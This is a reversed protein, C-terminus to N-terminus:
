NNEFYKDILGTDRLQQTLLAEPVTQIVDAKLRIQINSLCRISYREPLHIQAPIKFRITVAGAYFFRQYYPM